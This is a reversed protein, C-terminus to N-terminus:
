ECSPFPTQTQIKKRTRRASYVKECVCNLLQMRNKPTPSRMVFFFQTAHIACQSWLLGTVVFLFSFLFTFFFVTSLVILLQFLKMWFQTTKRRLKCIHTHSSLSLSRKKKTFYFKVWTKKEERRHKKGQKRRAETHWSMIITTTKLLAYLKDVQWM